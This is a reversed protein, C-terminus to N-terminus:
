RQAAKWMAEFYQRYSDAIKKNKILIITPKHALLVTMVNEGFINIEAPTTAALYRVEFLSKHKLNELIHGRASENYIIKQKIKKQALLKLHHTFFDQTKEPDEGKSAGFVYNVDGSKLTQRLLKYVTDMGRWGKFIEAETEDNGSVTQSLLDPLIHKIEKEQADIKKKKEQLFDLLREPTVARFQKRNEVLIYSVLGKDILRELADYVKSTHMGTKKIIAGTTTEGLSLLVLYVRIENKTLGINELVKEISAIM